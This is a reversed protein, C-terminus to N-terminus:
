RNLSYRLPLRPQKRPFSGDGSVDQITEEHGMGAMELQDSADRREELIEDLCAAM